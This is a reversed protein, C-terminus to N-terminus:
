NTKYRYVHADVYTRGDGLRELTDYVNHRRESDKFLADPMYVYVSLYHKGDESIDQIRFDSRVVGRQSLDHLTKNLHELVTMVSSQIPQSTPSYHRGTGLDRRIWTVQNSVKSGTRQSLVSGASSKAEGHSKAKSVSSAASAARGSLTKRESTTQKMFKGTVGKKGSKAM